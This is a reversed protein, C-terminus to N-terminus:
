VGGAILRAEIFDYARNLRRRHAAFTHNSEAFTYGNRGLRERLQPDRALALMAAAFGEPEAPALSAIEPALIQNHTPLDTALLPRGSHLYPFIKMPTNVGRIRPSVLIDAEALYRDLESFPRPGLFQTRSEIGLRRAKHRYRAIDGDMGGIIVLNLAKEQRCVRQFSELLLDVGQYLELNGCYLVVLGDIGLSRKLEGSAPANPHQLQSIDHITFTKTADVRAALEALANCVPLNAVSGRLAAQELANFLPALRRLFPKQEVLQQAISSDLDYVYPIGLLRKYAMALFVAEEDAHILDYGGRRVMSASKIALLLDCWLKRLSFGPRLGRTFPLAAIRHLRLNPLRVDLGERYTLLDVQTRPRQVPVRLAILV